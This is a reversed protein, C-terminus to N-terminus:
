PKSGCNSFHEGLLIIGRSSPCPTRTPWINKKNASPHIFDHESAPGQKVYCAANKKAAVAKQAQARNQWCPCLSPLIKQLQCDLGLRRCYPPAPLRAILQLPRKSNRHEKKRLHSVHNGYLRQVNAHLNPSTSLADSGGLELIM